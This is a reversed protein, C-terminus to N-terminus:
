QLLKIYDLEKTLSSSSMQPQVSRYQSMMMQSTNTNGLM